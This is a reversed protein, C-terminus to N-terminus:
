NEIIEVFYRFGIYTQADGDYEQVQDVKLFEPGYLWSGGKAIGKEDVMEAVNGSMNFLGYSNKWYSNVPATVDASAMNKGEIALTDTMERKYNCLVQGSKNRLYEGKWPYMANNDGAQAATIWEKETPLRFLVKEFKKGSAANYQKTLWECYKNAAEYSINVVPYNQYAPHSHYYHVYPENFAASRNWNSTDIQALALLSSDDSQRLYNLYTLYQMNSVEYKSAYLGESIKVFSKNIEKIDIQGAAVICSFTSIM